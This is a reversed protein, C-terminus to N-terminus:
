ESEANAIAALMASSIAYINRLDRQADELEEAPATSFASLQIQKLAELLEANQRNLEASELVTGAGFAERMDDVGFMVMSPDNNQEESLYTFLWDDFIDGAIPTDSPKTMSQEREFSDDYTGAGFQYRDYEGRSEALEMSSEGAYRKM